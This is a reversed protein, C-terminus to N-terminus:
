QRTVEWFLTDFGIQISPVCKWENNNRYEIGPAIQLFIWKRFMPHRYILTLRHRDIRREETSNHGFMSYRLSLGRAVDEDSILDSTKDEEILRHVHGLIASQEWEVGDTHETWKAASVSRIFNKGLWRNATFATVEGFGEQTEYFVRQRPYMTLKGISYKPRWDVRAIGVPENRWRLGLDTHINIKDYVHRFGANLVTESETPDVGPLENDRLSDVFISWRDKLNPLKLNVEFKPEFRTELDEDDETVFYLGMRFRSIPIEMADAPYKAFFHDFSNINRQLRLFIRDHISDLISTTNKESVPSQPANTSTM